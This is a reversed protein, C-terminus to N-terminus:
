IRAVKRISLLFNAFKTNLYSLISKAEEETESFFSIYTDSYYEQPASIFINELVVQQRQM